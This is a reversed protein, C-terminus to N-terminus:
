RLRRDPFIGAGPHFGVVKQNTPKKGPKATFNGCSCYNRDRSTPWFSTLQVLLHTPYADDNRTTRLAALISLLMNIM